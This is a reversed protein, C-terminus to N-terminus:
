PVVNGKKKGKKGAKGANWEEGCAERACRTARKVNRQRQGGKTKKKEQGGEERGAEKTQREKVKNRRARGRGPPSDCATHTQAAGGVEDGKGEGVCRKRNGAGRESVGARRRERRSVAKVEQYVAGFRRQIEVRRRMSTIEETGACAKAGGAREREGACSREKKTRGRGAM